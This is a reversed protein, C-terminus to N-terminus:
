GGRAGETLHDAVAALATRGREVDEPFTPEGCRECVIETGGSTM